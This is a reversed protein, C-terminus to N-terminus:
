SLEEMMKNFKAPEIVENNEIGFAKHGQKQINDRLALANSVLQKIKTELDKTLAEESEDALDKVRIKLYLYISSPDIDTPLRYFLTM